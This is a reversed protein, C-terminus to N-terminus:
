SPKRKQYASFTKESEFYLVKGDPKAGIVAKAKDVPKGSVPDTAQRVSADAALRGKCMECCGFYTKGGVPVPIQDKDFRTNNVMCVRAAPVRDLPEAGASGVVAVSALAVLLAIFTRRTRM